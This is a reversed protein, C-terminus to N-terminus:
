TIFDGIAGNEVCGSHLATPFCFRSDPSSLLSGWNLPLPEALALRKNQAGHYLRPLLYANTGLYFSPTSFPFM